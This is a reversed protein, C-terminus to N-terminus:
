PILVKVAESPTAIIYLGASCATLSLERLGEADTVTQLQLQGSLDYLENAIPFGIPAGTDGNAGGLYDSMEWGQAHALHLLAEQYANDAGEGKSNLWLITAREEELRKPLSAIIKKGADVTLKNGYCSLVNLLPMGSLQISTLQNDHLRLSVLNPLDALQITAPQYDHLELERLYTAKTLEVAKISAGSVILKYVDGRITLENGELTYFIPDKSNSIPKTTGTSELLGLGGVTLQVTSGAKDFSLKVGRAWIPLM